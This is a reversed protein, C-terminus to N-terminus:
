GIQSRSFQSDYDENIDSFRTMERPLRGTEIAITQSFAATTPDDPNLHIFRALSGSFNGSKLWVEYDDPTLPGVYVIKDQGQPIDRIFQSDVTVSVLLGGNSM